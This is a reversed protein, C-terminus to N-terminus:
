SEDSICDQHIKKLLDRRTEKLYAFRDSELRFLYINGKKPSPTVDHFHGQLLMDEQNLDIDVTLFIIGYRDGQGVIEGNFDGEFNRHANYIGIISGEENLTFEGSWTTKQTRKVRFKQQAFDVDSVGYNTGRLHLATYADPEFRQSIEVTGIRIYKKDVDSTMAHYWTGSLEFAIHDKRWAQLQVAPMQSQRVWGVGQYVANAFYQVLVDQLLVTENIERVFGSIQNYFEVQKREPESLNHYMEPHTGCQKALQGLGNFVLPLIRKQEKKAYEYELQTISKGSEPDCSGYERGLLLIVFDSRDILRKIYGFDSATFHEMCIPLNGSNLIYEIVQNRQNALELFVSSVFVSYIVDDAM